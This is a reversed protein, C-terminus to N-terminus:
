GGCLFCSIFARAKKCNRGREESLSAKQEVELEASESKAISAIKQTMIGMSVMEDISGISRLYGAFDDPINVVEKFKPIKYTIMSGTAASITTGNPKTEGNLLGKLLVLPINQWFSYGGLDKPTLLLYHYGLFEPKQLVVSYGKEERWPLNFVYDGFNKQGPKSFDFGPCKRPPRFRTRQDSEFANTSLGM